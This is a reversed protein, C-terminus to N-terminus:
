KYYIKSINELEFKINKDPEIVGKEIFFIVADYNDGLLDVWGTICQQIKNIKFLDATYNFLFEADFKESVFFANEGTIKHRICIEGIMINPLTYVFVSPSPFYNSSDRITEYFSHDTDLSSSSNAIIIGTDSHIMKNAINYEQILIETTLFGLKSLNDMKFFKPYALNFFKYVSKLFLTPNAANENQFLVADNRFVKNNRIKCYNKIILNDNM